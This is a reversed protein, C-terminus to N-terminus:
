ILEWKLAEAERAAWEATPGWSGRQAYQEQWKVWFDESDMSSLHKVWAAEDDKLHDGFEDVLAPPFPGTYPKSVKLRDSVITDPSQAGKWGSWENTYHGVHGHEIMDYHLWKLAIRWQRRCYGYHLYPMQYEIRDGPCRNQIQEHVGKGWSLNLNYRYVVDKPYIEQVMNPVIMFHHLPLIQVAINPESALHKRFATLSEPFYIEDTDVWHIFDADIDTKSLALNRLMSFTDARPIATCWVYSTAVGKADFEKQLKHWEEVVQPSCGNDVLVIQSAYDAQLLSRLCARFLMLGFATNEKAILQVSIFPVM